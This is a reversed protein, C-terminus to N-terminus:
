GTNDRKDLEELQKSLNKIEDLEEQTLDPTPETSAEIIDLKEKGSYGKRKFHTVNNPLKPKPLHEAKSIGESMMGELTSKAYNIHKGESKKIATSIVELDVVGVYSCIQERNYITADKLKMVDILDNLFTKHPNDSPTIFDDPSLEEEIGKEKEEKLKKEKLKKQAHNTISEESGTCQDKVSQENFPAPLKSEQPRNITQHKKFNGILVYKQHDVEYRVILKRGQLEELWNEVSQVSIEHDYPFIQSKLLAPHGNLRGEDDAQSILGMFLLRVLPEVTGLKEDIWFSPDIMRKRAM